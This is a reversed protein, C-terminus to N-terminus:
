GPKVPYVIEMIKRKGNTLKDSLENMGRERRELRDLTIAMLKIRKARDEERIQSRRAGEQEMDVMRQIKHRRGKLGQLREQVQASQRKLQILLDTRGVDNSDLETLDNREKGSSDNDDFLFGFQKYGDGDDGFEDCDDDDDDDTGPRTFSGEDAHDSEDQHLGGDETAHEELSVSPEEVLEDQLALREKNAMEVGQLYRDVKDRDSIADGSMRASFGKLGRLNAKWISAQVLKQTLHRTPKRTSEEKPSPQADLEAAPKAPLNNKSSSM